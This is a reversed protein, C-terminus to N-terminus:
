SDICCYTSRGVVIGDLNLCTSVRFVNYDAFRQRDDRFVALVGDDVGRSLGVAKVNVTDIMTTQAFNDDIAERNLVGVKFADKDGIRRVDRDPAVRDSLVVLAEIGRVQSAGANGGEFRCLSKIAAFANMQASHMMGRDGLVVDGMVGATNQEAVVGACGMVNQHGAISNQLIGEVAADGQSRM